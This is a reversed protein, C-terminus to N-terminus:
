GASSVGLMSFLLFLFSLSPHLALKTDGAHSGSSEPLQFKDIDTGTMLSIQCKGEEMGSSVIAAFLPFKMPHLPLEVSALVPFM